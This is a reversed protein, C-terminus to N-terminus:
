RQLVLQVSVSCFWSCCLMLLWSSWAVELVVWGETLPLLLTGAAPAAAEADLGSAVPMGLADGMAKLAEALSARPASASSAGGGAGGGGESQARWWGRLGEVWAPAAGAAAQLAAAPQPPLPPAGADAGLEDEWESGESEGASDLSPMDEDFSGGGGGGPGMGAAQLAQAM